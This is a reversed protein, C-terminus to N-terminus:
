RKCFGSNLYYSFFGAFHFGKENQDTITMDGSVSSHTGTYWKGEFNEANPCEKAESYLNSFDDDAIVPATESEAGTSEESDSSDISAEVSVESNSSGAEPAENKDSKGCGVASSIVLATILYFIRRKNMM